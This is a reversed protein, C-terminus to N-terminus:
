ISKLTILICDSVSIDMVEEALHIVSEPQKYTAPLQPMDVVKPNNEGEKSSIKSRGGLYLRDNV